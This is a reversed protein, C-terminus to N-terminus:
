ADGDSSYEPEQPERVRAFSSRLADGTPSGYFCGTKVDGFLARMASVTGHGVRPAHIKYQDGLEDLSTGADRAIPLWADTKLYGPDTTVVTLHPHIRALYLSYAGLLAKAGYYPYVSAFALAQPNGFGAEVTTGTTRAVTFDAELASIREWTIAPDTLSKARDPTCSAVFTPAASSSVNVIRGGSSVLPLLAATVRVAGHFNLAFLEDDTPANGGGANNVLAYLQANPRARIAAAAANVSEDNLVDLQLVEIRSAFDPHATVLTARAAEGRTVDRSGLLVDVDSHTILAEEALALGIGKNAGTILITRRMEQFRIGAALIFNPLNVLVSIHLPAVLIRTCAVVANLTTLRNCTGCRVRQSLRM